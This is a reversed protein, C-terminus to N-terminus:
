PPAEQDPPPPDAAAEPKALIAQLLCDAALVSAVAIKQVLEPPFAQGDKTGISIHDQFIQRAVDRHWRRIELAHTAAFQRDQM